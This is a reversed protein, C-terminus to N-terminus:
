SKSRVSLEHCFANLFGGGPISSKRAPFGATLRIFMLQRASTVEISSLSEGSAVRGRKERCFRAETDAGFLLSGLRRSYFDLDVRQIGLVFFLLADKNTGIEEM